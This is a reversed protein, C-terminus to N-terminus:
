PKDKIQARIAKAIDRCVTDIVSTPMAMCIKPYDDAVQACREITDKRLIEDSYNLGDKLVGNEAELEAIRARLEENEKEANQWMAKTINLLKRSAPKPPPPPRVFDDDVTNRGGKRVYGETLPKTTM